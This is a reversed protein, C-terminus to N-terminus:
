MNVLFPDKFTMNHFDLFCRYGAGLSDLNKRLMARSKNSYKSQFVLRPTYTVRAMKHSVPEKVAVEPHSCTVVCINRWYGNVQERTSEGEKIYGQSWVFSQFGLRHSNIFDHPFPSHSVFSCLCSRIWSKKYPDHVQLKNWSTEKLPPFAGVHEHQRNSKKGPNQM